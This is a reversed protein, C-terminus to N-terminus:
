CSSNPQYIMYLSVTRILLCLKSKQRPGAEPTSPPPNAESVPKGFGPRSSFTEERLYYPTDFSTLVFITYLMSDLLGFLETISSALGPLSSGPLLLVPQLFCSPSSRKLLLSKVNQLQNQPALQQRPSALALQLDLSHIAYIELELHINEFRLDRDM